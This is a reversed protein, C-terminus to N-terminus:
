VSWVVYFWLFYIFIFLLLVVVVVSSRVVVGFRIGFFFIEDVIVFDFDVVYFSILKVGYCWGDRVGISHCESEAAVFDGCM